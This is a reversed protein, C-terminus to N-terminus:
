PHGSVRRRSRIHKRASAGGAVAVPLLMFALLSLAFESILADTVFDM